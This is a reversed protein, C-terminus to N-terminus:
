IRNRNRALVSPMVHRLHLSLGLAAMHNKNRGLITQSLPLFEAEEFRAHELYNHVLFEVDRADLRTERGKAVAKLEPEINKWIAEIMRHEATLRDVLAQVRAREDGETASAIVAPFLEREEEAHHEYVARRFFDITDGAIRRARAAPDLLAPLEGLTELHSVIGVHCDRFEDLPRETDDLPRETDDLLTAAPSATM